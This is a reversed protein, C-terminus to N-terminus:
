NTIRPKTSLILYIKHEPYLFIQSKVRMFDPNHSLILKASEWDQSCMLM